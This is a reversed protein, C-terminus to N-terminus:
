RAVAEQEALAQVATLCRKCVKHSRITALKEAIQAATTLPERTTYPARYAGARTIAGCANQAYDTVYGRGTDVGSNATNSTPEIGDVHLTDSRGVRTIQLTM